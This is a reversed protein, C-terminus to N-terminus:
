FRADEFGHLDSVRNLSKRMIAVKALREAARWASTPTLPEAEDEVNIRRRHLQPPRSLTQIQRKHHLESLETELRHVFESASSSNSQVLLARASSLMHHAGTLDNREVMRRSEAVARTSIFLDKLRQINPTSSRVAHPRPVLLAQEKCYVLERTSPDKYSCRVSLVHHTGIASTPVKLEVLLEREEDASFDGLRLSGSGLSAPRNTYSYVAAVEAPASGSVFGLQVKLDQVAVNLKDGIFKTFVDDDSQNLGVSHVPIELNNFRTCTSVISSQYRHNTSITTTPRENPNDSLLIISAFPNRERRDELVKAAKKLADSASTGTGDLVVISDVIRRASRKGSTTMRRLPLIRKSTTSFAVISLRDSSSLSSIVLRMARKMMQINQPKMKGSVDLVMVLDIPARRATRALAPPAKLKLIIVYTEYSRGVSVVAAEPLLRAEFNTFNVLSEKVQKVNPHVFFGQFEEVVNDNEEGYEDSEPIPNFRAGSTPSMLPEDDNYVKLILRGQFSSENTFKVDTKAKPPPSVERITKEELKVPKQTDHISLLPLEKWESNCVPCVLATQKGLLAAICPFHFSHSCEATFIATGQGTKVTQLCTGCKTKYFSLSSKLLSFTSPSRPSTPTSRYFFKPSNKIKCQLKPSGPASAAQVTATRCRLLSSSVPPSQFRPNSFVGFKSNITPSPTPNTNDQKIEKTDRDRPISTCFARRWGLVM